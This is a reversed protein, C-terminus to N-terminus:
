CAMSSSVGPSADTKRNQNRRKLCVLAVILLSAVIAITSHLLVNRPGSIPKKGIVISVIHGGLWANFKEENIYHLSELLDFAAIRGNVDFLTVAHQKRETDECVVVCYSDSLYKEIQRRKLGKYAKCYLDRKRCVRVLDGLPALGNREDVNIESFIEVYSCKVDFYNLVAVASVPVCAYPKKDNQAYLQSVALSCLVLVIMPYKDKIIM